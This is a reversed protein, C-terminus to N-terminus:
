ILKLILRCSHWPLKSVLENQKIEIESENAVIRKITVMKGGASQFVRESFRHFQLCKISMFNFTRLHHCYHFVREHCGIWHWAWMIVIVILAWIPTQGRPLYDGNYTQSHEAQRGESNQAPQKCRCPVYTGNANLSSISASNLLNM